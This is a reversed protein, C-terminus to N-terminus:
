GDLWEPRYAEVVPALQEAAMEPTVAESSEIQEVQYSDLDDYVFEGILKADDDYPWFMGLRHTVLYWGEPDEVQIGQEAVLKGPLIHGFVSDSAFGWDAVAIKESGDVAGFVTTGTEDYASYFARVEDMGNLVATGKPGMIKYNPEAVTLEPVLIEQWRGSIELVAHYRYNELIARHRPDETVALLDDAAKMVKTVQFRPETGQSM